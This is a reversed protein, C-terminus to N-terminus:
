LNKYAKFLDVYKSYHIEEPRKSCDIGCKDLIDKAKEKDKIINSLNNYITKRRNAFLLKSFKYVDICLSRDLGSNIDITFVVSACKPVPYFCGHKVVFEKKPQGLLHVLISSPGYEKGSLDIFRNIAELQCMLVFRNCEAGYILLYNVLETTINYPLNGIIKNYHGINHKRIDNEYCNLSKYEHYNYRIFEIMRHDIDVVDIENDFQTLFHTLSGLGPGIELVKEGNKISLLDVIKKSVDPEVLFNQGYDKDPRLNFENVINMINSRNIEM